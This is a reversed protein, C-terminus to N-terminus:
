AVELGLHGLGGLGEVELARGLRAIRDGGDRAQQFLLLDVGVTLGVLVHDRDGTVFQRSADLEELHALALHDTAPGEGEIPGIGLGGLHEPGEEGLIVIPGGGPRPHGLFDQQGLAHGILLHESGKQGLLAAALHRDQHRLAAVLQLEQLHHGIIGLLGELLLTKPAPRRDLFTRLLGQTVQGISEAERLHRVPDLTVVDGM